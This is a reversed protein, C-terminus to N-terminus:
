RNITEADSLYIRSVYGRPVYISHTNGETFYLTIKDEGDDAAICFKGDIDHLPQSASPQNVRARYIKM